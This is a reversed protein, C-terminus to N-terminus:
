CAYRHPNRYDQALALDRPKQGREGGVPLTHQHHERVARPEADALRAPQADIVNVGLTHHNADPVGFASSLTM